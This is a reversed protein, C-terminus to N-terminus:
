LKPIDNVRFVFSPVDAQASVGMIKMTNIYRHFPPSALFPRENRILYNYILSPFIVLLLSLAIGLGGGNAITLPYLMQM